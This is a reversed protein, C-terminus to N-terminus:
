DEGTDPSSSPNPLDVLTPTQYFIRVYYTIENARVEIWRILSEKPLDPAPLSIGEYSLWIMKQGANHKLWKGYVNFFPAPKIRRRNKKGIYWLTAAVSTKHLGLQVEDPIVNSNRSRINERYVYDIIRRAAELETTLDQDHSVVFTELKYFTEPQSKRSAEQDELIKKFNEQFNESFTSIQSIELDRTSGRQYSPTPPAVHLNLSFIPNEFNKEKPQTNSDPQMTNVEQQLQQLITSGVRAM